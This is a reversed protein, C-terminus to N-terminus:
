LWDAPPKLTACTTGPPLPSLTFRSKHDEPRLGPPNNAFLSKTSGVVLQELLHTTVKGRVIGNDVTGRLEARSQQVVYIMGEGFIGVDVHVSVGPAGDGDQDFIRPDDKATPLAAGPAGRWGARNVGLDMVYRADDTSTDITAVTTTVPISRLFPGPITTDVFAPKGTIRVACTTQHQTLRGDEWRLDALLLSRTASSTRGLPLKTSSVHTMDLLYLGAPLVAEPEAAHAMSSTLGLLLMTPWM